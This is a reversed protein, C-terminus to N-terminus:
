FNYCTPTHFLHFPSCFYKKLNATFRSVMEVDLALSKTKSMFDGRSLGDGKPSLMM